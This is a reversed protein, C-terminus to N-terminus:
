GKKAKEAKKRRRFKEGWGPVERQEARTVALADKGVAKAIVSGAGVYAGDGVKVPAVLSSNSGIFPARASRPAISISARRLQLHHHRRRYEGGAGM